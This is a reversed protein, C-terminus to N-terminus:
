RVLNAFLTVILSNSLDIFFAGIIPVILFSQPAPGFRQVLADMNAVANPTTGLAFGIHGSTMVAAEYDRGMLLFITLVSYACTLVVQVLLITLMPVALQALQWLKLDMLAIMFFFALAISGITEVARGNLRLWGRRDDLERAVAGVIMCGIYAPLLIGLRAAGLGLLSGIGMVALLILLNHLLTLPTLPEPPAGGSPMSAPKAALAGAPQPKALRHRRILATAVPNGVLSAVLIGFTASALILAGAGPVGLREFMDTFALGTAPGGVLTLSGSIVGLLPPAAMVRAVAVGALNQVVAAASALVWFLVMRLGGARLLSLTAGMGITTFFAIQLPARLTNDIALEFLGATRLGFAALAFLVGGIAPAPINSRALLGSREQLRRGIALFLAALALTLVLDLEM